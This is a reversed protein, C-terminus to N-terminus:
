YLCKMSKRLRQFNKRMEEGESQFLCCSQFVEVAHRIDYKRPPLMELNVNEEEDENDKTEDSPDHQSQILHAVIEANTM